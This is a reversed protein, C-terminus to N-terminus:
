KSRFFFFCFFFCWAVSSLVQPDLLSELSCASAGVNLFAHVLVRRLVSTGTRGDARSLFPVVFFGLGFCTLIEGPLPVPSM